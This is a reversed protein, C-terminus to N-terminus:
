CGDGQRAPFVAVLRATLHPKKPVCQGGVDLAVLFTVGFDGAVM